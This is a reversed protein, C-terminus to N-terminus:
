LAIEKEELLHIEDDSILIAFEDNKNDLTNNHIIWQSTVALVEGRGYDSEVM